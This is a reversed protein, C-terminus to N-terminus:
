CRLLWNLSAEDHRDIIVKEEITLYEKISSEVKVQGRLIEAFKMRRGHALFKGSWFMWDETKGNFVMIEIRNMSM